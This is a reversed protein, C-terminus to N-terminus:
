SAEKAPVVAAMSEDVEVVEGLTTARMRRTAEAHRRAITDVLVLPTSSALEDVDITWSCMMFRVWGYPSWSALREEGSATAAVDLYVAVKEPSTRVAVVAITPRIEKCLGPLTDAAQQALGLEWIIRQVIPVAELATM